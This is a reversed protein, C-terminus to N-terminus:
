RPPNNLPPLACFSPKSDVLKALMNCKCWTIAYAEIYEAKLSALDVILHPQLLHYKVLLGNSNSHTHGAHSKLNIVYKVHYPLLLFSKYNLANYKVILSTYLSAVRQAFSEGDLSDWSRMLDNYEFWIYAISLPNRM